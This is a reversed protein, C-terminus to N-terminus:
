GFCGLSQPRASGSFNPSSRKFARLKSHSITNKLPIQQFFRRAKLGEDRRSKQLGSFFPNLILTSKKRLLIRALEL